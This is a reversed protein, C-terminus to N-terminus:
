AQRGSRRLFEMGLGGAVALGGLALVVIHLPIGEGGTQPLAAVAAEFAAMSAETGTFLIIMIKGNEVTAVANAELAVGLADMEVSTYRSKFRATNGDVQFDSLEFSANLSVEHEFQARIAEKGDYSGFAGYDLVADAAYPAVAAEVDGANLADFSSRVVAEPDSEQALVTGPLAFMLVVAIIVMLRTKMEQRRDRIQQDEDSIGAM